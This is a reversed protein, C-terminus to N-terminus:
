ASEIPTADVLDVASQASEASVFASRRHRLHGCIRTLTRRDPFPQGPRLCDPRCDPRFPRLSSGVSIALSREVVTGDQNVAAEGSPCGNWAPSSSVQRAAIALSEATIQTRTDCRRLRSIQSKSKYRRLRRLRRFNKAADDPRIQTM